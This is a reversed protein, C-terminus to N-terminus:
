IPLLVRVDTDLTGRRQAALGGAMGREVPIETTFESESEPSSAFANTKLVAGDMRNAWPFYRPRVTVISARIENGSRCDRYAARSLRRTSSPSVWIM